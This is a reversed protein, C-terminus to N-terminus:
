INQTAFIKFTYWNISKQIIIASRLHILNKTRYDKQALQYISIDDLKKTFFVRLSYIM